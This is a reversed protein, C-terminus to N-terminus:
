PSIRRTSQQTKTGDVLSSVDGDDNIPHNAQNARAPKRGHCFCINPTLISFSTRDRRGPSGYGTGTSGAGWGEKKTRFQYGCIVCVVTVIPLVGGGGEIKCHNSGAAMGLCLM